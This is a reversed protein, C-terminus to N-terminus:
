GSFDLHEGQTKTNSKFAMSSGNVEQAVLEFLSQLTVLEAILHWHVSAFLVDAQRIM